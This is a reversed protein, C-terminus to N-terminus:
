DQYMPLALRSLAPQRLGIVLNVRGRSPRPHWHAHKPTFVGQRSQQFRKTGHPEAGLGKPNVFFLPAVTKSLFAM